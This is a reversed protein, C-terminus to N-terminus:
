NVNLLFFSLFPPPRPSVPLSTLPSHYFNRPAIQRSAIYYGCGIEVNLPNIVFFSFRRKLIYFNHREILSFLSLSVWPFPYSLERTRALSLSARSPSLSLSLNQCVCVPGGLDRSPPFSPIYTRVRHSNIRHRKARARAFTHTHRFHTPIDLRFASSHARLLTARLARTAM